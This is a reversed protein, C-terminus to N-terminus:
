CILLLCQLWFNLLAATICSKKIRFHVHQFASSLFFGKVNKVSLFKLSKENFLAGTTM